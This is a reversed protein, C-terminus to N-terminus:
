TVDLAFALAALNNLDYKVSLFSSDSNSSNSIWRKACVSENKDRCSFVPPLYSKFLRAARANAKSTNKPVLNAKKHNIESETHSAFRKTAMKASSLNSTIERNLVFGFHPRLHFIGYFALILTQVTQYGGNLVSVRM